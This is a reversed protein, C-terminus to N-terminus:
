CHVNEPKDQLTNSVIPMRKDSFLRLTDKHQLENTKIKNEWSHQKM